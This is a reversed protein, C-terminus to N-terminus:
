AMRAWGAFEPQQLVYDECPYLLGTELAIMMDEVTQATQMATHCAVAGAAYRAMFDQGSVAFDHRYGAKEAAMAEASIWVTLTFQAGEFGPVTQVKIPAVRGVANAHVAGDPTTYQGTIM